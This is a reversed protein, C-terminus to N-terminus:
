FQVNRFRRQRYCTGLVVPISHESHLSVNAIMALFLEEPSDLAFIALQATVFIALLFTWAITLQREVMLIVVTV